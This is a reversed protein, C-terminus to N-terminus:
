GLLAACCKELAMGHSGKLLVVDGARLLPHLTEAAAEPTACSFVSGRAPRRAGRGRRSGAGLTGVTVLAAPALEALARGLEQHYRVADPGLELMDGAVIFKRAAPLARLTDLAAKFSAPNANYADDILTIGRHEHVTLPARRRRVFAARLGLNGLSVGAALAASIAALANGIQHAGPM